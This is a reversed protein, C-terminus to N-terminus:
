RENKRYKEMQLNPKQENTHQTQVTGGEGWALVGDCVVSSSSLLQNPISIFTLVIVRPQRGKIEKLM